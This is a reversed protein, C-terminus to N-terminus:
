ALEGCPMYQSLLEPMLDTFSRTPLFIPLGGPSPARVIHGASAFVHQPAITAFRRNAFQAGAVQAPLMVNRMMQINDISGVNAQNLRRIYSPDATYSPWYTEGPALPFAVDTGGEVLGISRCAAGLLSGDDGGLM